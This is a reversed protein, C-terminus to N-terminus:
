SGSTQLIIGREACRQEDSGGVSREHRHNLGTARVEVLVLLEEVM